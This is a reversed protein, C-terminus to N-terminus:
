KKKRKFMSVLQSFKKAVWKENTAFFSLATFFAPIAKFLIAIADGWLMGIVAMGSKAVAVYLVGSVIWTFSTLLFSDLNMSTQEHQIEM